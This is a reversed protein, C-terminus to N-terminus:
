SFLETLMHKALVTSVERVSTIPSKVQGSCVDLYKDFLKGANNFSTSKVFNKSYVGIVTFDIASSIILRQPFFENATQSFNYCFNKILYNWSAGIGITIFYLALSFSGLLLLCSSLFIFLRMPVLGHSLATGTDRLFNTFLYNM